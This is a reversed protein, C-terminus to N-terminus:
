VSEQEHQTEQNKEEKKESMLLSVATLGCGIGLFTDAVNFIAFRVFLFEIMDPVYGTFFRDIMNGVAGGLMMMLGTLALPSLQRKRLGIFAVIIVALSMAGLLWPHGSLMSFAAGTNQTYRLGLIGPLLVIGEPPIDPALTKTIRDAALIFAPILWIGYRRFFHKM